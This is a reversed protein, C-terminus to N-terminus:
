VQFTCRANMKANQPLFQTQKANACLSMHVNCMALIVHLGRKSCILHICVWGSWAAVISLVWVTVELPLDSIMKRLRLHMPVKKAPHVHQPQDSGSELADLNAGSSSEPLNCNLVGPQLAEKGTYHVIVTCNPHTAHHLLHCLISLECQHRCTYLLTVPPLAAGAYGVSSLLLLLMLFTEYIEATTGHQGAHLTLL